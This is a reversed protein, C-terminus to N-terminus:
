KCPENGHVYWVTLRVPHFVVLSRAHCFFKRRVKDCASSPSRDNCGVAASSSNGCPSECYFARVPVQFKANSVSCVYRYCVHLIQVRPIRDDETRRHRQTLQGQFWRTKQWWTGESRCHACSAHFFSNAKKNCLNPSTAWSRSYMRTRPKWRTKQKTQNVCPVVVNRPKQTM